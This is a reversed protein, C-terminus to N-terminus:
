NHLSFYPGYPERPSSRSRHAARSANPENQSPSLVRSELKLRQSGVPQGLRQVARTCGCEIVRRGACSRRRFCWDHRLRRRACLRACSRVPQSRLDAARAYLQRPTLCFSGHALMASGAYFIHGGALRWLLAEDERQVAVAEVRLALRPSVRREGALGHADPLFVEHDRAVVGRPREADALAVREGLHPALTRLDDDLIALVNAM